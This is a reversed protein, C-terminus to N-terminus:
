VLRRTVPIDIRYKAIQQELPREILKGEADVPYPSGTMQVRPDPLGLDAAAKIAANRTAASSLEDIASSFDKGDGSDSEFCISGATGDHQSSEKILTIAM